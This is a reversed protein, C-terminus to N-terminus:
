HTLSQRCFYMFKSYACFVIKQWLIKFPVNKHWFIVTKEKKGYSQMVFFYIYKQQM